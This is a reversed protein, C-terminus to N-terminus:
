RRGEHGGKKKGKQPCERAMHGFGQCNYCRTNPYVAGIGGGGDCVECGRWDAEGDGGGEDELWGVERSVPGGKEVKTNAWGIMWDKLARYEEGIEDWMLEVMEQIEKPCLKLMSSMKWMESIKTKEAQVRIIKEMQRGM